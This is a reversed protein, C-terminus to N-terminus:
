SIPSPLISLCSCQPFHYLTLSPHVLCQSTCVKGDSKLSQTPLSPTPIYTTHLFLHPSTRIDHDLGVWTPDM